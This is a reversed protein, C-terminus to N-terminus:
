YRYMFVKGYETHSPRWQYRMTYVNAHKQCEWQKGSKRVRVCGSLSVPKSWWTITLHTHPDMKRWFVQTFHERFKPSHQTLLKPKALILEKKLPINVTHTKLNELSVLLSDLKVNETRHVTICHSCQLCVFHVCKTLILIINEYVSVEVHNPGWQGM